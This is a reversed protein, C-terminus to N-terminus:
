GPLLSNNNYNYSLAMLLIAAEKEDQPFVQSYPGLKKSLRLALDEFIGFKKRRIGKNDEDDEVIINNNNNNKHKKKKRRRKMMKKKNSLDHSKESSYKKGKNSQLKCKNNGKGNDTGAGGPLSTETTVVLGNATAAAAAM